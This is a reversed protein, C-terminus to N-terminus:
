FFVGVKIEDQCLKSVEWGTRLFQALDRVQLFQAVLTPFVLASRVVRGTKEDTTLTVQRMQTVGHKFRLHEAIPIIPASVPRLVAPVAPVAPVLQKEDKGSEIEVDTDSDSGSVPEPEPEQVRRKKKAPQRAAARKRTKRPKKDWVKAEAERAMKHKLEREAKHLELEQLRPSRRRGLQSNISAM